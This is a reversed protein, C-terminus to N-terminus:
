GLTDAIKRLLEESSVPKTIYENCGNALCNERDEKMANATVAIVPIDKTSDANKLIRVVELGDMLPLSIDLLILDPLLSQAKKLGEIGDVAEEIEYIDQLIAKIAVRSDANDEILLVKKVANDEILIDEPEIVPDPDPHIYENAAVHSAEELKHEQTAIELSLLIKAKVLLENSKIGESAVYQSYINKDPLSSKNIESNAIILTPINELGGVRQLNYVMRLDNDSVVGQNLIIGSPTNEGTEQMAGGIGEAVVLEIDENSFAAIINEVYDGPNKILLLRKKEEEVVREQLTETEVVEEKNVESLIKNIETHLEQLSTQSKILVRSVKGDLKEQDEETLNKATIIIVPLDKTKEQSRIHELVQFGDVEPMLLDLILLDPVNEDIQRLCEKGGGATNVNWKESKLKFSMLQLDLDNDDVLLLSNFTRFISDVKNLLVDKIIPKKLHGIAGLALGTKLDESVSVVIVPINKTKPDKKLEQLVEWGDMEPMVIDLTIVAPQFKKALMLAEAGSTAIITEYGEDVLYSNIQSAVKQDDDVILINKTGPITGPKFYTVQKPESGVQAELPIKVVFTSGVGLKSEATIDGGLLCITKKAIALGLGTGEYKRSTTGDVQRFEEFIHPLEKEPIGIGTDYITVSVQNNENLKAKINVEGEDTFKISNGIINQFVQNLKQENSEIIPLEGEIELNLALGKKDAIPRINDVVANLVSNLSVRGTNLDIKGAEIKSLDLIDNILSLLQKGNREVISLYEHEEPSLREKTKLILVSSLALISNLPTRLEHSMNSVFESKLRNAEEVHKRQNNLEQNQINLEHTYKQLEEKKNILEQTQAELQKNVVSLHEALTNGKQNALINSYSYNINLRSHELTELTNEPFPHIGVLVIIGTINNEHLIPFIIMEKPPIKGASTTFKFKTEPSFKKIYAARETSIVDGFEGLCNDKKFSNKMEDDTGVSVFHEFHKEEENFVFFLSINAKTLWMLKHLLKEGFEQKKSIGMITKSVDNVNEWIDFNSSIERAMRNFSKALVGFENNPIHAVRAALNGSELSESVKNIKRIPKLVSKGLVWALLALVVLLIIFLALYPLYLQKEGPFLEEIDQKVIFGWGAEPIQAYAALVQKGEYDIEESIGTEGSLAKSAIASTFRYKLAAGPVDNLNSAAYGDKNIIYSEGTNGLGQKEDFFKFISNDVFTTAVLIGSVQKGQSIYEDEFIPMAFAMVEESSNNALYIDKIFFAGTKLPERYLPDDTLNDGFLGFNTSVAIQATVPNIIFIESYVPNLQLYERLENKIENYAARTENIELEDRFLPGLNAFRSNESLTRIDSERQLLWSGIQEVKLNRIALLKDHANQTISNSKQFYLFAVSVVLPFIGIILLWLTLRNQISNRKFM